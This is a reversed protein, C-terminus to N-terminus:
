PIGREPRTEEVSGGGRAPADPRFRAAGLDVRDGAGVMPCSEARLLGLARTRHHAPPEGRANVVRWWPVAAGALRLAAGVQRPGGRGLARGVAAAVDGYTTARGAPVEEVADLVAEVYEEDVGM